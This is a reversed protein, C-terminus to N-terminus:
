ILRTFTMLGNVSNKDTFPTKSYVCNFVNDHELWSYEGRICPNSRFKGIVAHNKLGKKVWREWDEDDDFMADLHWEGVSSHLLCKEEAKITVTQLKNSGEVWASVRIPMDTNNHFNIYKTTKDFM